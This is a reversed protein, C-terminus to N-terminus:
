AFDLRDIDLCVVCKKLRDRAKEIEQETHELLKQMVYDNIYLLIKIQKPKLTNGCQEDTCNDRIYATINDIIRQYEARKGSNKFILRIDEFDEESLGLSKIVSLAKGTDRISLCDYKKKYYFLHGYGKLNKLHDFLEDPLDDRYISLRRMTKVNEERIYDIFFNNIASELYNRFIARDHNKFSAVLKLFKENLFRGTLKLCEKELFNELEFGSLKLTAGTESKNLNHSFLDYIRQRYKEKIVREAEVRVDDKKGASTLILLSRDLIADAITGLYTWLHDELEDKVYAKKLRFNSMKKEMILLLGDLLDSAFNITDTESKYPSHITFLKLFYEKYLEFLKLTYKERKKRNGSQAEKVIEDLDM